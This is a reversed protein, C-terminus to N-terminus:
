EVAEVDKGTQREYVVVDALFGVGGILWDAFVLGEQLWCWAVVSVGGM